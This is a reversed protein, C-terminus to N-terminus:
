PLVGLLWTLAAVALLFALGVALVGLALGPGGIVALLILILLIYIM